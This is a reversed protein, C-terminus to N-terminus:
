GSRLVPAPTDGSPLFRHMKSQCPMQSNPSSVSKNPLSMDQMLVFSHNQCKIKAGLEVHDKLCRQTTLVPM